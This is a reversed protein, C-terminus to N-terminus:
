IRIVLRIHEAQIGQDFVPVFEIVLNTM